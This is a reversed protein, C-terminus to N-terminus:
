CFTLPQCWTLTSVNNESVRQPSFSFTPGDLRDPIGILWFTPSPHLLQSKKLKVTMQCRKSNIDAPRSENEMSVETISYSHRNAGPPGGPVRLTQRRPRVPSNWPASTLKLTDRPLAAASSKCGTGPSLSALCLFPVPM